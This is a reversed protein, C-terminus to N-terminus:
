WGHFIPTLLGNHSTLSLLPRQCPLFNSMQISNNRPSLLILAASLFDRVLDQGAKSLFRADRGPIETLALPNQITLMFDFCRGLVRGVRNAIRPPQEEEEQQCQRTLTRLALSLSM